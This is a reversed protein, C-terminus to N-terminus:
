AHVSRVASDLAEGVLAGIDPPRSPDAARLQTYRILASRILALGLRGVLEAEFEGDSRGASTLRKQVAAAIANEIGLLFAAASTGLQRVPRGALFLLLPNGTAGPDAAALRPVPAPLVRRVVQRAGAM